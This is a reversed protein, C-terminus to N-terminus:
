AQIPPEASVRVLEGKVVEVAPSEPGGGISVVAGSSILWYHGALGAEIAHFSGRLVQRDEPVVDEQEFILEAAWFREVEIREIAGTVKFRTHELAGGSGKLRAHSARHSGDKVVMNEIVLTGLGVIHNPSASRDMAFGDFRYSYFGDLVTNM